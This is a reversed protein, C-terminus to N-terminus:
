VPLLMPTLQHLHLRSVQGRKDDQPRCLQLMGFAARAPQAQGWLATGGSGEAARGEAEAAAGGGAQQPKLKQQWLHLADAPEQPAQLM